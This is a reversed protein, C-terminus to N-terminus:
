RMTYSVPFVFAAAGYCHPLRIVVMHEPIPIAQANPIASLM